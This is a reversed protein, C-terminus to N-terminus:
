RAVAAAIEPCWAVDLVAAVAGTGPDPDPSTTDYPFSGNDADMTLDLAFPSEDGGSMTLDFTTPAGQWYAGSWYWDLDGEGREERVWAGEGMACSLSFTVSAPDDSLSIGAADYGSMVDAYLACAGGPVVVEPNDDTDGVRLFAAAEACTVDPSSSVLVSARGNVNVGFASGARLEASEDGASITGLVEAGKDGGCAVLALLVGAAAIV